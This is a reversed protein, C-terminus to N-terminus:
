ICRDLNDVSSLRRLGHKFVICEEIIKECKHCQESLPENQASATFKLLRSGLDKWQPRADSISTNAVVAFDKM